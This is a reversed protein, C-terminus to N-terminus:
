RLLFAETVALLRERAAVDNFTHGVGTFPHHEWRAGYTKEYQEMVIPPLHEDDDSAAFLIPGRYAAAEGWPDIAFGDEVFRRYRPLGFYDDYGGDAFADWHPVHAPENAAVALAAPAWLALSRVERRTAALSATLGGLSMGLLSLRDPLLAQHNALEDLIAEVQAVQDSITLAAFDGDSEGCGAFDFRYAATGQAALRKALHVFTYGFEMRNGGFGHCMVVAPAPERHPQPLHLVGRLTRGAHEVNLPEM